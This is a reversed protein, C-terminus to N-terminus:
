LTSTSSSSHGQETFAASYNVYFPLLANNRLTHSCDLRHPRSRILAFGNRHYDFCSRKCLLLHPVPLAVMRSTHCSPFRTSLSLPRTPPPLAFTFPAFAHCFINLLQFFFHYPQLLLRQHYQHKRMQEKHLIRLVEHVQNLDKNVM